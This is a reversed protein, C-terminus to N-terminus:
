RSFSMSSRKGTVKKSLDSYAVRLESSLLRSRFLDLWQNRSEDNDTKFVIRELGETNVPTRVLSLFKLKGQKADWTEIAYSSPRLELVAKIRDLRKINKHVTLTSRTLCVYRYKWKTGEEVYIQSALDEDDRSGENTNSKAFFFWVFLHM